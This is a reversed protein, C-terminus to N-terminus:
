ATCKVAGRYDQFSVGFDFYGRYQIGLVNPAAEVQEVIPQQQGNLFAVEIVSISTQRPDSFLYWTSGSNGYASDELYASVVPRYKGKQINDAPLSAQSSGGSTILVASSFLADATSELTPPVLIMSGKLSLPFGNPDKQKRLLAVAAAIGSVGLSTSASLNKNGITFFSTNAAFLSWFKHNITRGANRGIEVPLSELAGLDDNIMDTRTIAFIQGHTSAQNTFSQDSFVGHKLEGDPGVQQFVGGALMRYSTSTKFDNVPRTTAVDKWSSEVSEYGQLLFKNALNSFINVAEATSFAAKIVAEPESKFSRFHHGNAAACELLMEQLGVRSRFRTHAADLQAPTFDRELAQRSVGLGQMAAARITVFDANANGAVHIGVNSPRSARLCHLEFDSATWNERIAKAEIDSHKGGYQANITRLKHCRETEAAMDSRMAALAENTNTASTVVTANVASAAVPKAQCDDQGYQQDFSVQLAAKAEESLEAPNLGLSVLYQEFKMPGVGSYAANVTVATQPDAGVATLSIERLKMRRSVYIPGDFSKGNVSISQGQKVFELKSAGGVSAQWIFGNRSNAVVEDAWENVASIVGSVELRSNTKAIITAHGIAKNYDHERIIPLQQSPIELTSLDIVVPLDIGSLAMLGGTYATMTFTPVKTGESAEIAVQGGHFRMDKSQKAKAQIIANRHQV